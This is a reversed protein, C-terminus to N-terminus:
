WRRLGRSAAAPGQGPPPAGPGEAHATLLRRRERPDLGGWVGAPEGRRLAHRLCQPQVPCLACVEKAAAVASPSAAPADLRARFFPRAGLRRCEARERWPGQGGGAEPPRSVHGM